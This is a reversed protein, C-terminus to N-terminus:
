DKNEYLVEELIEQTIRTVSKAWDDDVVLAGTRDDVRFCYKKNVAEISYGNFYEGTEQLYNIGLNKATYMICDELSNFYAYEGNFVTGSINNNSFTLDSTGWGSEQITIACLIAANVNYTAEADIYAQGLGALGTGELVKNLEDATFNSLVRLDQMNATRNALREAEKEALEKLKRAEEEGARATALAYANYDAVIQVRAPTFDINTASQLLFPLFLTFKLM